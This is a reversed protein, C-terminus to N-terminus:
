KSDPPILLLTDPDAWATVEGGCDFDGDPWEQWNPPLVDTNWTAMKIRRLWHVILPKNPPAPFTAADHFIVASSWKKLPHPLSWSM